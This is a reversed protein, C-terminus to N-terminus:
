LLMLKWTAELTLYKCFITFICVLVDLVPAKYWMDLVIQNSHCGAARGTVVAAQCALYKPHSM